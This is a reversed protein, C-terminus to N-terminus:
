LKHSKTSRIFRIMKTRDTETFEWYNIVQKKNGEFILTSGNKDSEIAVAEDINWKSGKGLIPQYKWENGKIKWIPKSLWAMGVYTVIFGIPLVLIGVGIAGVLFYLGTFILSVGTLLLGSGIFVNRYLIWERKEIAHEMHEPILGSDKYFRSQKQAVQTLYADSIHNEETELLALLEKIEPLSVNSKQSLAIMAKDSQRNRIDLYFHKQVAEYFNAKQISLLAKNNRQTFYISTITKMFSLTMNMKPEVYPVVPQMRKARFLIYLFVGGIAMLLAVVLNENKFIFQLYSTDTKGDPVEEFPDEEVFTQFRSFEMWFISQDSPVRNLWLRSYMYGESEKLHINQFLNPNFNLYVMGDGLPVAVSHNVNSNWSLRAYDSRLPVENKVGRWKRAVTDNQFIHHFTYEKQNTVIKTSPGYFYSLEVADYIQALLKGDIEEASVFLKSGKGVLFLLRDVEESTLMFNDGVFMFTRLTDENLQEFAKTGGLQTVEATSDIKSKLLVNWLYLGQPDKSLLEYQTNWNSSVLASNNNKRAKKERPGSFLFVVLGVVLLLSLVVTIKLRNNM